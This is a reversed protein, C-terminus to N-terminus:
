GLLLGNPLPREPKILVIDNNALYVGLVLCESIFPGVQKPKFNIVALISQGKLDDCSYLSTIQASSRKIGFEGFDITLKYAPKKAEPFAEASIISGTRIEIKEFDEWSITDKM